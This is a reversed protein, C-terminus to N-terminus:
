CLTSIRTRRQYTNFWAEWGCYPNTRSGVDGISRDFLETRWDKRLPRVIKIKTGPPLVTERITYDREIALSKDASGNSIQLTNQKVVNVPRPLVITRNM